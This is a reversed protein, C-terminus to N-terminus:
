PATSSTPTSSASTPSTSSAPTAAAPTPTDPAPGSPTAGAMTGEEAPTLYTTVTLEATLTPTTTPANVDIVPSLNFADVTLLRGDVIVGDHRAHVMSDVRKMFDAIQFFGGVFKLQYPMVPLGAPGVSAGIPLAAASAETAEAAPEAAPATSSAETSSSSPESSSSSDTTTTTGTTTASSSSSESLDISQFDIGSRNALKELQLLLSSQDADKPVAKGLVVLKRYDVPFSEKAQEGAAAAQEAQDLESQLQSVDDKLTSAEQRKPALVLLWFGVLLGVVLVAIGITLENRRV